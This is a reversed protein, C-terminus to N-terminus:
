GLRIKGVCERARHKLCLNQDSNQPWFSFAIPPPKVWLEGLIVLREVAKNGAHTLCQICAEVARRISRSRSLSRSIRRGARYIHSNSFESWVLTGTAEPPPREDRGPVRGATDQEVSVPVPLGRATLSTSPRGAGAGSSERVGAGVETPLENQPSQTERSIGGAGDVLLGSSRSRPFRGPGQTWPHPM